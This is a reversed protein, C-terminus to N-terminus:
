FDVSSLDPIWRAARATADRWRERDLHRRPEVRVRPEWREALTGVDRRGAAGLAALLAAGRATAERIPSVEVTRQTADALAQV